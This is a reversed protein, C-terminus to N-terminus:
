KAGGEQARREDIYDEFKELKRLMRDADDFTMGEENMLFWQYFQKATDILEEVSMTKRGEETPLRFERVRIM